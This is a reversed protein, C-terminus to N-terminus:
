QTSGVEEPINRTDRSTARAQKGRGCELCFRESTLTKDDKNLLREIRIETPTRLM